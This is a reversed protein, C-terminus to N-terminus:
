SAPEKSAVKAGWEAILAELEGLAPEIRDTGICRLSSALLEPGEEPTEDDAVAPTPLLTAAVAVIFHRAGSLIDALAQLAEVVSADSEIPM